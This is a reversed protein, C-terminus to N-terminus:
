KRLYFYIVCIVILIVYMILMVNVKVMVSLCNYFM